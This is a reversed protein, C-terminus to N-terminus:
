RRSNAFCTFCALPAVRKWHYVLFLTDWDSLILRGTKQAPEIARISNDAFGYGNLYIHFVAFAASYARLYTWCM